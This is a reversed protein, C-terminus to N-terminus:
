PIREWIKDRKQYTGIGVRNLTNQYIVQTDFSLGMLSVGKVGKKILHNALKSAERILDEKRNPKDM